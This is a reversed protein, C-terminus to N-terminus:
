PPRHELSVAPAQPESGCAQSLLGGPVVRAQGGEQVAAGTPLAPDGGGAAQSCAFHVDAAPAQVSAGFHGQSWTQAGPLLGEAHDM